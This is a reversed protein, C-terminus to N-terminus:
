PALVQFPFGACNVVIQQIGNTLNNLLFVGKTLLGANRTDNFPKVVTQKSRGKKSKGANEAEQANSRMERM